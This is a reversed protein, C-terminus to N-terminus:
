PGDALGGHSPRDYPSTTPLSFRLSSPPDDSTISLYRTDDDIDAGAENEGGRMVGFTHGRSGYGSEVTLKEKITGAVGRVYRDGGMGWIFSEGGFVYGVQPVINLLGRGKM